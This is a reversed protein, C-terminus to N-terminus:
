LERIMSGLLRTLIHARIAYLTTGIGGRCIMGAFKVTNAGSRDPVVSFVAGGSFGNSNFANGGITELKILADDATPREECLCVRKVLKFSKLGPEDGFDAVEIVQDDFAHGYALYAVPQDAKSQINTGSLPFFKGRSVAGIAVPEAFRFAGFDYQDDLHQGRNEVFIFGNSSIFRKPGIGPLTLSQLDQGSLQHKTVLGFELGMYRVLTTSGALTLFRSEDETLVHLADCYRALTDELHRSHILVEGIRASMAFRLDLLPLVGELKV